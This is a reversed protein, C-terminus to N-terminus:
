NNSEGLSKLEFLELVISLQYINILLYHILGEIVLTKKDIQSFDTKSIKITNKNQLFLIVM